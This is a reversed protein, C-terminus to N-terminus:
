DAWRLCNPPCSSFFYCQTQRWQGISSPSMPRFTTPSLRHGMEFVAESKRKDFHAVPERRRNARQTIPSAALITSDPREAVM